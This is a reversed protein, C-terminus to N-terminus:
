YMMIRPSCPCWSAVSRVSYETLAMFSLPKSSSSSPLSVAFQSLTCPALLILPKMEATPSSLISATSAFLSSMASPAM